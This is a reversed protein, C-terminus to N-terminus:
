RPRRVIVGFRIQGDESGSTVDTAEATIRAFEDINGASDALKFSLYIEDGDARTSNAGSFVAVQNAVANTLNTLTLAPTTAADNNRADIEKVQIQDDWNRYRVSAGSTVKIDYRDQDAESFAWLGDSNTTTSAEETSTGTELLQVTAGSVASGADDFVYGRFNIAM